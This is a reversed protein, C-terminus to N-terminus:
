PFLQAARLRDFFGRRRGQRSKVEVMREDFDVVGPGRVAVEHLDAALKVAEEYASRGVLGELDRWAADVRKALAAVRKDQAARAAAAAQERERSEEKLRAQTLEDARDSLEAVTRRSAAMPPHVCRFEAWMAAGLALNPDAVARLLWRDRQRAPLAKVWEQFRASEDGNDGAAEAAAALLDRDIRLFEALAVVGADEVSLGAPVPPELVDTDVEDVQVALLWALYAVRLDGRLLQARLPALSGTMHGDSFFDDEPEDTESYLDVIAYKGTVSLMAVDGPFYEEWTTPDVATRPLRFMVRRTGWNTFYVHMDFYKALLNRPDAKLDGWQYENCFRTSTIEARTSIARLQAM